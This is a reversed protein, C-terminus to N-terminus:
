GLVSLFRKWGIFRFLSSTAMSKPLIQASHPATKVTLEGDSNLAEYKLRHTEIVRMSAPSYELQESIEKGVLRVLPNGQADTKEHEPIDVIVIERPLNEPLPKRKGRAKTHAKVEIQNEQADDALAEAVLVEAENFLPTQEVPVWRESRKGFVERKFQRLQEILLANEEAFLEVRRREQDLAAKQECSELKLAANEDLLIKLVSDPESSVQSSHLM